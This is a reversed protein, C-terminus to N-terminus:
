VMYNALKLTRSLKIYYSLQGIYSEYRLVTYSTWWCWVKCVSFCWLYVTNVPSPPPAPPISSKLKSTMWSSLYPPAVSNSIYSRGKSSERRACKGTQFASALDISVRWRPWRLLGSRRGICMMMGKIYVIIEKSIYSLSFSFSHQQVISIYLIAM